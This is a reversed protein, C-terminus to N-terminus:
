YKQSKELPAGDAGEIQLMECVIAYFKPLIGPINKHKGHDNLSRIESFRNWMNHNSIFNNVEYHEEFSQEKYIEIYEKIQSSELLSLDYPSREIAPITIPKATSSKLHELISNQNRVNAKEHKKPSTLYCSIGKAFNVLYEKPIDDETIWCDNLSEGKITEEITFWLTINSGSELKLLEPEIGYKKVKSIHFFVEKSPGESISFSEIFGFGRDSYKVVKGFYLDVLKELIIRYGISLVM